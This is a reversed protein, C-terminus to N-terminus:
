CLFLHKLLEFGIVFPTVPREQGFPPPVPSCSSASYNNLDFWVSRLRVNALVSAKARLPSLRWLLETGFVCVLLKIGFLCLTAPRGQGFPPLRRYVAMALVTAKRRLPSLRQLLETGVVYLLLEIGFM